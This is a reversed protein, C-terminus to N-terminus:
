RLLLSVILVTSTAGRSDGRSILDARGTLGKVVRGSRGNVTLISEIADLNDGRGLTM